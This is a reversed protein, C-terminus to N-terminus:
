NKKKQKKVSKFKHIISYIGFTSINLIVLSSGHPEIANNEVLNVLWQKRTVLFTAVIARTYRFVSAVIWAVWYTHPNWVHFILFGILVIVVWTHSLDFLMVIKSQGGAELIRFSLIGLLFAPFILIYLQLLMIVQHRNIHSIKKFFFNVYENAFISFIGAFVIGFILSVLYIRKSNWYAEKFLNAGLYKGCFFAVTGYFGVFSSRAIRTFIGFIGNIVGYTQGFYNSYSRAIIINIVLIGLGFSIEVIVMHWRHITKIIIERYISFLLFWNFTIVLKKIRVFIDFFILNTATSILTAYALGKVGLHYHITFLYDFTSNIAIAIIAIILIFMPRGMQLLSSAFADAIWYFFLALAMYKTYTVGYQIIIKNSTFLGLLQHPFIWFPILSLAWFLMSFIIKLQHASRVHNFRKAGYYQAFVVSVAGHVGFIIVLFLIQITFSYNIAAVVNDGLQGAFFNDVLPVLSLLIASLIGPIAKKAILKFINWDWFHESTPLFEPNAKVKVWKMNINIKDNKINILLYESISSLKNFFVIYKRYPSLM